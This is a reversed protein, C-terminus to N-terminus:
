SPSTIKTAADTTRESFDVTVVEVRPRIGRWDAGYYTTDIGCNPHLDIGTATTFRHYEADGQGDELRRKGSYHFPAASQPIIFVGRRALTAAVAILHYEFRHGTYGGPSNRKRPVPGFPPNSIACDFEGLVEAMDPLDLVDAQIWRAEPMVRRGVAVYQPNNEVCVM